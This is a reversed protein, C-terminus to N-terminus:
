NSRLIRPMVTPIQSAELAILLSHRNLIHHKKKLFSKYTQRMIYCSLVYLPLAIRAIILLDPENVPALLRFVVLVLVVCGTQRLLRVLEDWPTHHLVSHYTDLVIIVVLNILVVELLISWFFLSNLIGEKRVILFGILLSFLVCLNDLFMFDIHQSWGRLRRKYM